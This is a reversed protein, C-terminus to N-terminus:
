GGLSKVESTAANLFDIAKNLETSAAQDDVGCDTSGSVLYEFAKSLNGNVTQDPSDTPASEVLDQSLQGCDTGVTTSDAQSSYDNGITAVDKEVTNIIQVNTRGSENDTTEWARIARASGASAHVPATGVRGGPDSAGASKHSGGATAAVISGVVIAALLGDGLWWWRRNSRQPAPAPAADMWQAGDWVRQGNWGSGDWYRQVRPDNPDPYWGAPSSM